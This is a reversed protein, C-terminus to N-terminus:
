SLLLGCNVEDVLLLVAGKLPRYAKGGGEPVDAENRFGSLATRLRLSHRADHYIKIFDYDLHTEFALGLAGFFLQKRMRQLFEWFVRLSEKRWRIEPRPCPLFLSDITPTFSAPTCDTHEPPKGLVPIVWAIRKHPVRM